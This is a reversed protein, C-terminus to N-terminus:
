RYSPSDVLTTKMWKANLVTWFFPSGDTYITVLLVISFAIALTASVARAIFLASPTIGAGGPALAAREDSMRPM